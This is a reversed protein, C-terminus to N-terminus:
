FSIQWAIGVGSLPGMTSGRSANGQGPVTEWRDRPRALGVAGGIILGLGAGGAGLAPYALKCDERDDCGNQASVAALTGVVAGVLFGIGAGRWFGTARSRGTSVELRSVASLSMSLPESVGEFAVTLSDVTVGRLVGVRKKLDHSPASVRVRAGSTLVNAQALAARSVALTIAIAAVATLIRSGTM